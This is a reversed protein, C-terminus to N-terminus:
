DEEKLDDADVYELGDSEEEKVERDKQEDIEEKPLLQRTSSISRREEKVADRERMVEVSPRSDGPEATLIM